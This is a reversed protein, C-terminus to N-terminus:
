HRKKKTAKKEAPKKKPKKKPAKKRTTKKKAKKTVKRKTPKKKTTKAKREGAVNRVTVKHKTEFSLDVLTLPEYVLGCDRCIIQDRLGSHIINRSACDPCEKIKKTDM